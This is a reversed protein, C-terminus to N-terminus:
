NNKLVKDVRLVLSETPLPFLSATQEWHDEERGKAEGFTLRSTFFHIMPLSNKSKVNM